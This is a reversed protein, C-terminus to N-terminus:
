AATYVATDRSTWLSGPAAQAWGFSEIAAVASILGAVAGAALYLAVGPLRRVMM